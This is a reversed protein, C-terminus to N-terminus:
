SRHIIKPWTASNLVAKGYWKTTLIKPRASHAFTSEKRQFCRWLLSICASCLKRMMNSPMWSSVIRSWEPSVWYNCLISALILRLQVETLHASFSLPVPQQYYRELSISVAKPCFWHRIAKNAKTVVIKVMLAFLWMKSSFVELVILSSFWRVHKNRQFHVFMQSTPCYTKRTTTYPHQCPMHLKTISWLMAGPLSAPIQLREPSCSKHGSCMNIQAGQLASQRASTLPQPLALSDLDEKDKPNLFSLVASESSINAWKRGQLSQDSKRGLRSQIELCAMFLSLVPMEAIRLNDCIQATHKM